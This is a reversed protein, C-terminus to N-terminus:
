AIEFLEHRAVSASGADAGAPSVIRCVMVATRVAAVVRLRGGVKTYAITRCSGVAILVTGSPSRYCPLGMPDEGLHLFGRGLLLEIARDRTAIANPSQRKAEGRGTTVPGADAPTLVLSDFMTERKM